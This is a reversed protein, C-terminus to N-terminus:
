QVSFTLLFFIFAAVPHSALLCLECCFLYLLRMSVKCLLHWQCRVGWRYCVLEHMKLDIGLGGINEGCFFTNLSSAFLFCHLLLRVSCITGQYFGFGSWPATWNYYEDVLNM